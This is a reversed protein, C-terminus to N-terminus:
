TGVSHSVTSCRVDTGAPVYWKSRVDAAELLDLLVAIAGPDSPERLAVSVQVTAIPAM